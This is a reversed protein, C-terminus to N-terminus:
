YLAKQVKYQQYGARFPFAQKPVRAMQDAGRQHQQGPKTQKQNNAGGHNGFFEPLVAMVPRGREFHDPLLRNRVRTLIGAKQAVVILTVGPGGALVGVDGALPAVTRLVQVSSGVIRGRVLGLQGVHGAEAAAAMFLVRGFGFGKRLHNSGFVRAAHKAVRAM